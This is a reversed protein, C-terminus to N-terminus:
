TIQSQLGTGIHFWTLLGNIVWDNNKNIILLETALTKFGRGESGGAGRNVRVRTGGTGRNISKSYKIGVSIM